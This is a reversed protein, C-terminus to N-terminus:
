KRRELRSCGELLAFTVVWLAALAGLFVMDV